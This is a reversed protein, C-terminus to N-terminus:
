KSILRHIQGAVEDILPDTRDRTILSLERGTQAILSFYPKLSLVTEAIAKFRQCYQQDENETPKEPLKPLVYIPGCYEEAVTKALAPQSVIIGLAQRDIIPMEDDFVLLGPVLQSAKLSAPSIAAGHDYKYVALDYDSLRWALYDNPRFYYLGPEAALRGRRWQSWIDIRWDASLKALLQKEQQGLPGQSFWAVKM